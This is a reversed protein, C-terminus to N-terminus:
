FTARSWVAGSPAVLEIRAPREGTLPVLWSGSATGTGYEDSLTWSGGSTRTGDRGVLICEYRVGPRGSTVTLVVYSRGSLTAV